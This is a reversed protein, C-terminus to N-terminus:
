KKKRLRELIGQRTQQIAAAFAGSSGAPSAAAREIFPLAEDNRGLDSLTQALNNLAVPSEPELRVAQRLAAEAGRLDGLAHQTNALGIHANM